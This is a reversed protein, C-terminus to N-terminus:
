IQDPQVVFNLRVNPIKAGTERDEVEGVYEPAKELTINYLKEMEEKTPNIAKVYCSGVGIFRKFMGGETSEKGKSIAMFTKMVKTDKM